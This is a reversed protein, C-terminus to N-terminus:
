SANNPLVLLHVFLNWASAKATRHSKNSDAFRCAYRPTMALATAPVTACRDRDKDSEAMIGILHSFSLYRLEIRRGAPQASEACSAAGGQCAFAFPRRLHMKMNAGKVGGGPEFRRPMDERFFPQWPQM